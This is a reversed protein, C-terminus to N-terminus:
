QRLVSGGEIRGAPSPVHFGGPITADIYLKIDSARIASELELFTTLTEDARLLSDTVTAAIHTQLGSREGTPVPLRDERVIRQSELRCGILAHLRRATDLREARQWGFPSM